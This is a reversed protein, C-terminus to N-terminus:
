VENEMEKLEDRLRAAEVFDESDAAARMQMYLERRKKMDDDVLHDREGGGQKNCSCGGTETCVQGVLRPQAMLRLQTPAGVPAMAAPFFRDMGGVIPLLGDFVRGYDFLGVSYGEMAACESCLHTESVCGNINSRFHFSVGSKGCNQCKM